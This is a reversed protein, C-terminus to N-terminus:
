DSSASSYTRIKMGPSIISKKKPFKRKYEELAAIYKDPIKEGREESNLLSRYFEVHEPNNWNIEIEKEEESSTIDSYSRYLKGEKDIYLYKRLGKPIDGVEDLHFANVYEVFGPIPKGNRDLSIPDGEKINGEIENSSKKTSVNTKEETSTIDKDTKAPKKNIPTIIKRPTRITKSTSAEPSYTIPIKRMPEDESSSSSEVAIDREIEAASKKSEKKSSEEKPTKKITNDKQVTEESSPIEEKVTATRKKPKIIEESSPIEEKVVPTKKKETSIVKKPKIVTKKIPPPKSSEESSSNVVKKPKIVTKKIPPPKSSEESSSNKVVKTKSTKIKEKSPSNNVVKPKSNMRKTETAVKKIQPKRMEGSSSISEKSEKIAGKKTTTKDKKNNVIKSVKTPTEESSSTSKATKKKVSM